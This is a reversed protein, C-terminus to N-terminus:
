FPILFTCIILLIFSVLCAVCAAGTSGKDEGLVLADVCRAHRRMAADSRDELRVQDRVRLTIPESGGGEKAEESM